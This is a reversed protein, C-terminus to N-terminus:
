LKGAEMKVLMMSANWLSMYKAVGIFNKGFMDFMSSRMTFPPLRGLIKEGDTLYAMQVPMAYEGTDSFGGGSFQVPLVALRGNLIEKPTKQLPSIRFNVWGNNPIDRYNHYASGTCEVGYKAAIRKDAYGRLIKGNKIYCLRDGKHVIGDADWFTSMWINTKTVNHYITLNESFVKEGIKGSLLSTGLALKEANLCDRLKGNLKWDPMMIILEDPMEVIKTYNTLYNDAMRRFCASSFGNRFNMSFYGDDLDKSDKHKFSISVGNHGDKVQYDMGASNKQQEFYSNSFFNGSFTFDPHAKKLYALESKAKKMLQEDTLLKETKDLSRVGSELEFPYQRNLELNKKAKEFGEKDTMKGQQFHVGVIGKDYVRFSTSTKDYKNFSVIENELIKVESYIGTNIYKEKKM